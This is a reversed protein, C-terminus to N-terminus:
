RTQCVPIPPRQKRPIRRPLEPSPAFEDDLDDSEVAHKIKDYFYGYASLLPPVIRYDYIKDRKVYFHQGYNKRLAKRDGGMIDIFLARDYQTPWVKYIEVERDEMLHPKDNLIYDTIKEASTEFGVSRAYDRAAALFIQFTTLRQQGDVVQFSPRAGGLLRRAGGPRRRGHFALVAARAREPM